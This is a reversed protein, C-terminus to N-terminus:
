HSKVYDLIEQHLPEAMKRALPSKIFGEPLLRLLKEHCHKVVDEPVKGGHALTFEECRQIGIAGLAELRDADSLATLYDTYFEGVDERKGTNEKSFSVNDIILFVGNVLEKGLHFEVFKVLEEKSISEPYKHDRVDHLMSVYTLFKENYGRSGRISKMIKHANQTVKMAHVHNHSDDFHKTSEKVFNLLVDDLEFSDHKTFFDM